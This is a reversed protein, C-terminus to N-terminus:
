WLAKGRPLWNPLHGAISRCWEHLRWRRGGRRDASKMCNFGSQGHPSVEGRPPHQCARTQSNLTDQDGRLFRGRRLGGWLHLPRTQEEEVCHPLSPPPQAWRSLWEENKILLDACELLKQVARDGGALGGQGRRAVGVQNGAADALQGAGFRGERRSPRKRADGIKAEGSLFQCAWCLNDAASLASAGSKTFCNVSIPALLVCFPQCPM